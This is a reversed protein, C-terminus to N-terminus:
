NRIAFESQVKKRYRKCDIFCHQFPKPPPAYAMTAGKYMLSIASGDMRPARPLRICNKSVTPTKKLLPIPARMLQSMRVPMSM